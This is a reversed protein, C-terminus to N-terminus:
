VHCFGKFAESASHLPVQVNTDYPCTLLHAFCSPLLKVEAEKQVVDLRGCVETVQECMCGNVDCVCECGGVRITQSWILFVCLAM